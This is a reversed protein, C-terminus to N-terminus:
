LKSRLEVGDGRGTVLSAAGSIWCTFVVGCTLAAAEDVAM